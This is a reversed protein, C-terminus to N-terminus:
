TRGGSRAAGARRIAQVISHYGTCRCFNGSMHERIQARSAGPNREVLDSDLSKLYRTMKPYSEELDRPYYPVVTVTLHMYKSM